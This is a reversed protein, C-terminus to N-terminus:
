LRIMLRLFILLGKRFSSFVEFCVLVLMLFLSRSVVCPSDVAAHDADGVAVAVVIIDNWLSALSNRLRCWVRRTIRGGCCCFFM